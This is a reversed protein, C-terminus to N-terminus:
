QNQTDPIELIICQPINMLMGQQVVKNSFIADYTHGWPEGSNKVFAIINYVHEGHDLM